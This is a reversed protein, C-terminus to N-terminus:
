SGAHTVLWTRHPHGRFDEPVTRATIDKFSAAPVLAPELKLSRANTSFLITGAPALVALCSAVLEPWHRATDLFGEMKASNSFTPPDLIIIDYRASRDAEAALFAAADSRVGRYLTHDLSNLAINRQAWDLYTNSLDVGTVHLAGGALAYVTFSGTYCYLNLVNKSASMNRIMARAPRHDMFLGSDIYDTLNVWFSLGNERVVLGGPGSAPLRDNGQNVAKYDTRSRQYQEDIGLKKRTKILVSQRPIGLSSAATAAMLDLWAAEESEPKDYPREYLYLVASDGYRDLSLPIEPIDRDYVRYCDSSSKRAAKGLHRNRKVVRNGFFRAQELDKDSFM